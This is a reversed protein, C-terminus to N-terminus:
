LWLQVFFRAPHFSPHISPHTSPHISPYHLRTLSQKCCDFICFQKKPTKELRRNYIIQEVLYLTFCCRSPGITDKIAAFITIIVLAIIIVISSITKRGDIKIRWGHGGRRFPWDWIKAQQRTRRTMNAIEELPPSPEINALIM